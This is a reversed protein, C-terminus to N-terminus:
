FAQLLFEIACHASDTRGVRLWAEGPFHLTNLDCLMKEQGVLVGTAPQRFAQL